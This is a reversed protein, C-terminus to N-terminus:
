WSLGGFDAGGEGSVWDIRRVWKKGLAENVKGILEASMKELEPAWSSDAVEVSLVGDDFALPKTKDSVAEGVAREWTRQLVIQRAGPNELWEALLSYLADGVPKFSM